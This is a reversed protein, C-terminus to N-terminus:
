CTVQNICGQKKDAALEKTLVYMDDGCLSVSRIHSCARLVVATILPIVESHLVLLGREDFSCVCVHVFLFGTQLQHFRGIIRYKVPGESCRLHSQFLLWEGFWAIRRERHPLVLPAPSPLRALHYCRHLRPHSGSLPFPSPSVAFLWHNYSSPSSPSSLPFTLALSGPLMCFCHSLSHETLSM